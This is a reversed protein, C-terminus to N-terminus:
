ANQMARFAIHKLNDFEGSFVKEARAERAAEGDKGPINTFHDLYETFAQYGAWATGRIAANTPATSFLNVINDVRDQQRGKVLESELEKVPFIDTVIKRFARDTMSKQILKEAEADFDEMYKFSLDLAERARAVAGGQGATHRKSFTNVAQGIAAAQTNSCVIRVPTTIVRFSKSGDHTNLASIYLDVDDVGGVSIHAPAKMTVFVERGGKLSGATEIQADADILANLFDGHEENQVPQYQKGVVGLADIQGATFPNNRVVVFHDEDLITQGDVVTQVPSKRVNWNSLHALDLASKVDLVQDTTTGLKHWPLERHSVFAALDGSTEINHSM